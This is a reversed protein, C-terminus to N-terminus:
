RRTTEMEILGRLAVVAIQLLEEGDPKDAKVSDFFEDLEEALVGYLEHPSNFLKPYRKRQKALETMVRDFITPEVRPNGSAGICIADACEGAVSAYQVSQLEGSLEVNANYVTIGVQRCENMCRELWYERAAAWYRMWNVLAHGAPTLKTTRFHEFAENEAKDVFTDSM